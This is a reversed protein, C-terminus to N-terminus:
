TSSQRWRTPSRAHSIAAALATPDKNLVGAHDRRFLRSELVGAMLAILVLRLWVRAGLNIIDM